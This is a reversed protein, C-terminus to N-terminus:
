VEFREGGKRGAQVFWDFTVGSPSGETASVVIRETTAESVWLAPGPSRLTVQVTVPQDARALATFAQPLTITSNGNILRGSGRAFIAAETGELAATSVTVVAGNQLQLPTITGVHGTGTVNGVVQLDANMQFKAGADFWRLFRGGEQGNDYFLVSSDGDPGAANLSVNRLSLLASEAVVSGPPLTLGRCAAADACAHFVNTQVIPHFGVRVSKGDASPTVLVGGTTTVPVDGTASANVGALSSAVPFSLDDRAVPGRDDNSACGALVSASLLIFFLLVARMPRMRALTPANKM